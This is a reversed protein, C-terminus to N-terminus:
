KWKLIQQNVHKSTEIDNTNLNDNNLTTVYLRDVTLLNDTIWTQTEVELLNFTAANPVAQFYDLTTADSAM